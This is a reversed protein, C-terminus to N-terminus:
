PIVDEDDEFAGAEASEEDERARDRSAPGGGGLLTVRDARIETTTRNQGNRDEWKRTQLKGEVCVQKGKLLYESLSEAQKGWLVVTHWETKEQRQGNKDNWRETTALSFSGVPQGGHTYRLECDRGLNGILFVKNIGGM